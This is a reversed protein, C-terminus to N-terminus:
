AARADGSAWALLAGSGVFIPVFVSLLWAHRKRDRYPPAAALTATQTSM